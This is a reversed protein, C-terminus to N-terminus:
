CTHNPGKQLLLQHGASDSRTQLLTNGTM